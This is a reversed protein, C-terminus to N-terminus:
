GLVDAQRVWGSVGNYSARCWTEGDRAECGGLSVAAGAPVTMATSGAGAGSMLPTEHASRVSGIIAAPANPGAERGVASDALAAAARPSLGRGLYREEVVKRDAGAPRTPTPAAGPRGGGGFSGGGSAGGSLGPPPPAETPAAAAVEVPAGPEATTTADVTRPADDGGGFLAFTALVLVVVAGVGIMINVRQKQGAEKADWASGALPKKSPVSASAM